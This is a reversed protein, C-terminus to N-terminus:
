VDQRLDIFYSGNQLKMCLLKTAMKLNKLFEQGQLKERDTVTVISPKESPLDMVSAIKKLIIQEQVEVVKQSDTVMLRYQRYYYVGAYSSAVTLGLLIVVISIVISKNM